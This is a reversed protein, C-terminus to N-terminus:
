VFPVLNNIFPLSTSCDIFLTPANLAAKVPSGVTGVSVVRAQPKPM